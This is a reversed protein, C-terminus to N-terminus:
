SETIPQVTTGDFWGLVSAPQTTTGDFWTISDISLAATGDFWRLVPSLVGGVGGVPGLWDTDSVAAYDIAVYGTGSRKTGFVMSKPNLPGRANGNMITAKDALASTVESILTGAANSMRYTVQNLDGDSFAELWYWAGPAASGLVLTESVQGSSSTVSQVEYTKPSGEGGAPAPNNAAPGTLTLSMPTGGGYSGVQIYYLTGATAEFTVTSNYGTAGSGDAGFVVEVMNGFETGTLVAIQFDGDPGSAETDITVSGNTSPQYYYWATPTYYVGPGGSPEGVERTYGDIDKATTSVGAELPEAGAFSDNTLVGGDGVLKLFSYPLGDPFIASYDDNIFYRNTILDTSLSIGSATDGPSVMFAVRSYAKLATNEIDKWMLSQTADPYAVDATAGQGSLGEGLFATYGLNPDNAGTFATNATTVAEGVAGGEFEEDLMTGRPAPPDPLPPLTGTVPATNGTAAWHQSIRAPSLATRYISAEGLVVSVRTANAWGVPYAFSYRIPVGNPLGAAVTASLVEAGCSYVKIAGDSVTITYLYTANGDSNDLGNAHGAATFTHSNAGDMVSLVLDIGRVQLSISQGPVTSWQFAFITQPEFEKFNKVQALVEFSWTSSAALTNATIDAPRNAGSMDFSFDGADPSALLSAVRTPRVGGTLDGHRTGVSDLLQNATAADEKFRYVSSPSDALVEDIYGM